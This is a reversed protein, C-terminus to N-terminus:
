IASAATANAILAAKEEDSYAKGVAKNVKLKLKKQQKLLARLAGAQAIPLLRLLFGIEENITKPSAGEQLRNTQYEIIRRDSIDVAMADGLLRTVHSIAYDAFNASKPHRLIYDTPNHQM